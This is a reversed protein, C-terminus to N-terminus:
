RVQVPKCPTKIFPARKCAFFQINQLSFGGRPCIIRSLCIERLLLLDAKHLAGTSAGELDAYTHTQAVQLSRCERSPINLSEHSKPGSPCWLCSAPVNELGGHAGHKLSREHSGVQGAAPLIAQGVKREVSPMLEVPLRDTYMLVLRGVNSM